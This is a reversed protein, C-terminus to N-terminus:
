YKGLDDEEGKNIEKIREILVVVLIITIIISVILVMTKAIMPINFKWLTIGIIVYGSSICVVVTAPAIFKKTHSDM